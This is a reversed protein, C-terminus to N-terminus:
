ASPRSPAAMEDRSRASKVSLAVVVLAAVGILAHPWWILDDFGFLWPSAALAVAFVVDLILHSRFSLRRVVGFEYDTPLSYLIAFVGLGMTIYQAAGNDAFGLV